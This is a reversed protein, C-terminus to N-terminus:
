YYYGGLICHIGYSDEHVMTLENCLCITMGETTAGFVLKRSTPLCSTAWWCQIGGLGLSRSCGSQGESIRLGTWVVCGSQSCHLCSSFSNLKTIVVLRVFFTSLTSLFCFESSAPGNVCHLQFSIVFLALQRLFRVDHSILLAFAIGTKPCSIWLPVNQGICSAPYHCDFVRWGAM